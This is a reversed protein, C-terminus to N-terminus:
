EAANKFSNAAWGATIMCAAAMVGLGLWVDSSGFNGNAMQRSADVAYSLPDFKSVINLWHPALSMPLLIGALLMMPFAVTNIFPAFADENKLKLATAYSLAAMSFALLAILILLMLLGTISISLGFPLAVGILVGAQITLVVVDRMAHGLLNSLPSAPTVSLREIFGWRMEAILGFGTFAAGFLAMQVILGPVFVNMAGGSPFGQATVVRKLLPGFLTLYLVPQLLGIVIWVPNRLTALLTRVFILWSDRLTKM